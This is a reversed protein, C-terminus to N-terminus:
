PPPRPPAHPRPRVATVLNLHAFGMSGAVSMATVVSQYDARADARITVPLSRRRGAFRALAERLARPGSRGLAEGDVYYRGARDISIVVGPRMPARGVAARPLTVAIHATRIFTTSMMFFVLLMLLIDIFSVVNLEPSEPEDSAFRV